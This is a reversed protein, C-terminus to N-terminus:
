TQNPFPILGLGLETAHRQVRFFDEQNNPLEVDKSMLVDFLEDLPKEARCPSATLLAVCVAVIIGKMSYEGKVLNDSTFQRDNRTDGQRRFRFTSAHNFKLHEFATQDNNRAHTTENYYVHMGKKQNDPNNRIVM